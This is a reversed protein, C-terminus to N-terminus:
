ILLHNFVLSTKLEPEKFVFGINTVVAKTTTTSIAGQGAGDESKNKDAMQPKWIRNKAPDIYRM